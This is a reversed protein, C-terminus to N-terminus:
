PDIELCLCPDLADIEVVVAIGVSSRVAEEIVRDDAGAVGLGYVAGGAGVAQDLKEYGVRM